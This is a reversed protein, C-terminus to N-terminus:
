AVIESVRNEVETKMSKELKELKEERSALKTSVKEHADTMKRLSSEAKDLEKTAKDLAKKTEAGYKTEKELEDSKNEVMMRLNAADFVADKM